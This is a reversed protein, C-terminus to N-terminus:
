FVVAQGCSEAGFAIDLQYVRDHLLQRVARLTHLPSAFTVVDSAEQDDLHAANENPTLLIASTSEHTGFATQLTIHYEKKM